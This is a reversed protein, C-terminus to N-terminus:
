LVTVIFINKPAKIDAVVASRRLVDNKKLNSLVAQPSVMKVEVCPM